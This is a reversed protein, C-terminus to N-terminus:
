LLRIRKVSFGLCSSALLGFDIWFLKLVWVVLVSEEGSRSVFCVILLCVLNVVLHVLIHIRPPSGSPTHIRKKDSTDEM